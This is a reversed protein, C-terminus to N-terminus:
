YLADIPVAAPTWGSVTCSAQAPKVRRRHAQQEDAAWLQAAKCLPPELGATILKSALSCHGKSAQQLLM